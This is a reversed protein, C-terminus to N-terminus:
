MKPIIVTFTSGKGLESKVNVTGNHMEVLQRVISLGLGTSPEGATPQTSLRQYKQFLKKLDDDSLGPGEDKVSIEINNDRKSVTVWIGGGLHSYKIANTILNDIVMRLRSEDGEVICGDEKNFIIKQNKQMAAITNDLVVLETLKGIDVEKKDLLLVGSEIISSDLIEDVLNHVRQVTSFIDAAYDAVPSKKDAEEIIMKSLMKISILPSKLDHTLINLLDTKSQNVSILNKHELLGDTHSAEAKEKAEVLARTQESFKNVLNKRM